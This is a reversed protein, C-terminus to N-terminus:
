WIGSLLDVRPDFHPTRLKGGYKAQMKQPNNVEPSAWFKKFPVQFPPTPPDTKPLKLKLSPYAHREVGGRPLLLM